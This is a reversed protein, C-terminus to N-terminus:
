AQEKMAADIAERITPKPDDTNTTASWGEFHNVQRRDGLGTTTPEWRTTWITWPTNQTEQLWNLRATDAALGPAEDASAHCAVPSVAQHGLAARVAEHLPDDTRGPHKGADKLVFWVRMIEDGYAKARDYVYSVTNGRYHRRNAEEDTMGDDDSQAQHGLSQPPEPPSARDSALAALAYAELQEASYGMVWVGQRGYKAINQENFYCCHMGHNRAEEEYWHHPKPLAPLAPPKPNSTM